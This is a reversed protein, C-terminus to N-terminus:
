ADGPRRLAALCVWDDIQWREALTLGERELAAAVEEEQDVLIGAVVLAGSALVSSAKVREALGRQLMELIVKALINVVVLDYHDRAEPLSGSRITVCAEAGNAIVNSRAAAVAVEDTDLALVPKAGLGAAAISLIGSGTGVDLVAAGPAVLAELAMLCMQTTPHLGTGFAQGPDLTIVIEDPAPAYTRWSPCIVIRRGIHLVPMHAKWAEAWDTEAVWRFTPEPIPAIQGLHWLAERVRQRKAPLGDDTPLYARVFVPGTHLGEPGAEIAVGRQAYRALVEAVAEAVENNVAVSVELWEM